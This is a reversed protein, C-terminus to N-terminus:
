DLSVDFFQPVSRLDIAGSVVRWVRVWLGAADLDGTTTTYSATAGGGAVAAAREFTGGNPKHFTLTVTAGTLDWAVGDKTPVLVFNYTGSKVVNGAAPM